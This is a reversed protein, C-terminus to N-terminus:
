YHFRDYLYMNVDLLQRDLWEREGHLSLLDVLYAPMKAILKERTLENGAFYSSRGLNALHRLDPLRSLKNAALDIWILKKLGSLSDANVIENFPASLENLNTLKEIGSLSTLKNNQAYLLKLNSLNEIGSLSTLNSNEKVTLSKLGPM